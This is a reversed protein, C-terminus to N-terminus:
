YKAFLHRIQHIARIKATALCSFWIMLAIMLVRGMRKQKNSFILTAIVEAIDMAFELTLMLIGFVYKIDLLPIIVAIMITRLITDYCTTDAGSSDDEDDDYWTALHSM